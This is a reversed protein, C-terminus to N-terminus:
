FFEVGGFEPELPGAPIPEAETFVRSTIQFM